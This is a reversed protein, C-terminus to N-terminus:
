KWKIAAEFARTDNSLNLGQLAWLDGDPPVPNATVSVEEGPRVERDYNVQLWDLPRQGIMDAPLADCIWEVYRSNNVHGLMDVASYAARVRLREEGDEQALGIRELPEDLGVRDATPLDLDLSKPPLMRRATADMVLWASTAAALREGNEALMEFDRIYFLKQQITKPWTHITVNEGIHPFHFFKLKMRAHVWFLNRAYMAEFGVGLKGAHVTAAETLHQFFAAPKMQRNVDCEYSHVRFTEAYISETPTM